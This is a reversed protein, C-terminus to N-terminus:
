KDHRHAEGEDRWIDLPHRFHDWHLRLSRPAGCEHARLLTDNTIPWRRTDTNVIKSNRLVMSEGVFYSAGMVVGELCAHKLNPNNLNLEFDM